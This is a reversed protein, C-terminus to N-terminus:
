NQHWKYCLNEQQICYFSNNNNWQGHIKKKELISLTGLFLSWWVSMHFNPIKFQQYASNAPPNSSLSYCNMLSSNSNKFTWTGHRWHVCKLKVTITSYPRCGYNLKATITSCPWHVCKLKVTVSSHPWHGCKLKVTITICPWHDCKLTITVTSLGTAM